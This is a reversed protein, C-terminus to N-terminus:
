NTQAPNAEKVEFSYVIKEQGESYATLTYTGLEDFRIPSIKWAIQVSINPDPELEKPPTPMQWTALRRKSPSDFALRLDGSLKGEVSCNLWFCLVPLLGPFKDLTINENYIGVITTKGTVEDRVDDCMLVFDIKM